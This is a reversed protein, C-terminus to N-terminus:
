THHPAPARDHTRPQVRDQVSYDVEELVNKLIAQLLASLQSALHILHADWAKLLRTHAQVRAV